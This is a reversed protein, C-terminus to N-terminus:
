FLIKEMKPKPHWRMPRLSFWVKIKDTEFAYPPLNQAVCCLTTNNNSEVSVETVTSVSGVWYHHPMQNEQTTDILRKPRVSERSAFTELSKRFARDGNGYIERLERMLNQYSLPTVEKAIVLYQSEKARKALIKAKTEAADLHLHKAIVESVLDLHKVPIHIPSLIVKHLTVTTAILRGDRDMIDGSDGFRKPTRM